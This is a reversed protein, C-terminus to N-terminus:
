EERHSEYLLSQSESHWKWSVLQLRGDRKFSNQLFFTYIYLNFCWTIERFLTFAFGKREKRATLVNRSTLLVIKTALVDLCNLCNLIKWELHIESLFAQNKFM